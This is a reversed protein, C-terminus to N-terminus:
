SGYTSAGRWRGRRRGFRFQLQVISQELQFLLKRVISNVRGDLFKNVIM